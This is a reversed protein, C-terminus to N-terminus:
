RVKLVSIKKWYWCIFFVQVSLVLYKEVWFFGGSAWFVWVVCKAPHCRSRTLLSLSQSSKQHLLKWGLELPSSTLCSPLLVWDSSLSVAFEFGPFCRCNKTRTIETVTRTIIWWHGQVMHSLCKANKQTTTTSFLNYNASQCPGRSWLWLTGGTPSLNTFTAASLVTGTSTEEGLLGRRLGNAWHWISAWAEFTDLNVNYGFTCNPPSKHFFPCRVIWAISSRLSCSTTLWVASTGHHRCAVLWM